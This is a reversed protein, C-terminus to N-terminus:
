LSLPPLNSLLKLLQTSQLLTPIWQNQNTAISNPPLCITALTPSLSPNVLPQIEGVTQQTPLASPEPITPAIFVANFKSWCYSSRWHPRFTQLTLAKNQNMNLPKKRKLIMLLLLTLLTKIVTRDTVVVYISFFLLLRTSSTSLKWPSLLLLCASLLSSYSHPRSKISSAVFLCYHRLHRLLPPM